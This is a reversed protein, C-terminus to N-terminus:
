APKFAEVDLHWPQNPLRQYRVFGAETFLEDLLEVTHGSKHVDWLKHDAQRQWGYFGALAHQRQTWRPNAPSPSPPRLDLFQQIHFALDPVILHVRGGPKLLRYWSKLTNKVQPFTLHELTHRSYFASVSEAPLHQEITWAQSLLGIGKLPRIDVGVHGAHPGAEGCGVDLMLPSRDLISPDVIGPVFDDSGEVLPKAAVLTGPATGTKLYLHVFFHPSPDNPQPLMDLTEDIGVVKRHPDIRYVRQGFEGAFALGCSRSALDVMEQRRFHKVHHKFWYQNIAFPMTEENPTSVFLIGGPRLSQSLCFFFREPDAVHEISEFCMIFDYAEAPLDFLFLKASFTTRPTNFHANAKQIAEECGDIGTVFAGLETSALWAGYGNGCFVDLGQLDRRHQFHHKIIRTALQYRSAHDRRISEFNTATQREGSTYSFDKTPTLTPALSM